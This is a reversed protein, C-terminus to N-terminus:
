RGIVRSSCHDRCYFYLIVSQDLVSTISLRVPEYLGANHKLLIIAPIRAVTAFLFLNWSLNDSYNNACPELVISLGVGKLDTRYRKQQPPNIFNICAIIGLALIAISM